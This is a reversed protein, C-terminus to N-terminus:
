ISLKQSFSSMKSGSMFFAQNNCSELPMLCCSNCDDTPPPLPLPPQPTLMWGDPVVEVVLVEQGQMGSFLVARGASGAGRDTMDTAAAVLCMVEEREDRLAEALPWQLLRRFLNYSLLSSLSSGHRITCFM